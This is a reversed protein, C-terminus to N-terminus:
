EGKGRSEGSECGGRKGCGYVRAVGEGCVGCVMELHTVAGEGLVSLAFLLHTSDGEEGRPSREGEGSEERATSSPIERRVCEGCVRWVRKVCEGCVSWPLLTRRPRASELRMLLLLRNVCVRADEGGERGGKMYMVRLGEECGAAPSPPPQPNRHALPRRTRASGKVECM